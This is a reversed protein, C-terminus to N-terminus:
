GRVVVTGFSLLWMMLPPTDHYSSPTRRSLWRTLILEMGVAEATRSPM